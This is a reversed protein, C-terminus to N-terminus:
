HVGKCLEAVLASEVCSKWWQVGEVVVSVRQMGRGGSYGKVCVEAIVTGRRM